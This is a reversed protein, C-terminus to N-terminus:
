MRIAMPTISLRTERIWKDDVREVWRGTVDQPESGGTQEAQLWCTEQSSGPGVMWKHVVAHRFLRADGREQAYIPSGDSLKELLYFMGMRERHHLSGDLRLKLCSVGIPKTIVRSNRVGGKTPRHWSWSPHDPPTPPGVTSVLWEEGGLEKEIIWQETAPNYRLSGGERGRFLKDQPIEAESTEVYTGEWLETTGNRPSQNVLVYAKKWRHRNANGSGNSDVSATGSSHELRQEDQSNSRASCGSNSPSLPLGRRRLANLGRLPLMKDQLPAALEASIIQVADGFSPRTRADMAWCKLMIGYVAATCAEHPPQPLRKGALVLEQVENDNRELSWPISGQTFVEWAVVASSFVDSASTFKRFQISEPSMWRLPGTDSDCAVSTATKALGFDAVKVRIRKPTQSSDFECVLINRAALDRHVVGLSSVHQMGQCVQLWISSGLSALYVERTELVHMMDLLSGHQCLETILCVGSTGCSSTGYMELVNPHRLSSPFNLLALIGIESNLEDTRARCIAIPRDEQLESLVGEFVEKFAGLGIQRGWSLTGPPFRPSSPFSAVITQTDLDNQAIMCRFPNM